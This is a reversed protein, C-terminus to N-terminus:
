CKIINRSYSLKIESNYINAGKKGCINTRPLLRYFYLLIYNYDNVKYNLKKFIM